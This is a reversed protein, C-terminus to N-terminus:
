KKKIIIVVDEGVIPTGGYDELLNGTLSLVVIDGDSVNGIADVIQQQDFKLTLDLLGDPGEEICDYKSEKGLFPYFPSCVDEYSCRLTAVGILEISLPDVTSVDFDDTGVIAVPLIGNSGVNLPNPCSAPKIDVPVPISKGIPTGPEDDPDGSGEDDVVTTPPVQDADITAYNYITSEPVANMNVKVVLEITPGKQGAPVTGINWLVTHTGPKYVGDHTASVFDLESPLTDVIRVNTVAYPNMNEYTIEYTFTSGIYVEGVIVDNKALKLPNVIANAVAIGAPTGIDGTAQVRTWPVTSADWVELNQIPSNGAYWGTVYVFGSVEDVAIGVGQHGM